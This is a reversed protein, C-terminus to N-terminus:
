KFLRGFIHDDKVLNKLKELVGKRAQGKEEAKIIDEVDRKKIKKDKVATKVRKVVTRTNQDLYAQTSVKRGTPKKPDEKLQAQLEANEEKLRALEQEPTEATATNEDSKTKPDELGKETLIKANDFAKKRDEKTPADKGEKKYLEALTQRSTVGHRTATNKLEANKAACERAAKRGADDDDFVDFVGDALPYGPHQVIQGQRIKLSANAIRMPQDPRLVILQKM